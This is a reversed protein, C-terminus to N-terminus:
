NPRDEVVAELERTRQEYINLVARNSYRAADERIDLWDAQESRLEDDAGGAALAAAYAESMRRDAAALRPDGCVMQQSRTLAGQCDFSPHIPAPPAPAVPPAIAAPVPLSVSANSSVAPDVFRPSPEAVQALRGPPPAAPASPARDEQIPRSRTPIPPAAEPAAAAEVNPGASAAPAVEARLAPTAAPTPASAPAKSTWGGRTLAFGAGVALMALLAVAAMGGLGRSPAPPEDSERPSLILADHAPEFRDFEPEDEDLADDYPLEEDLDRPTDDAYSSFGRFPHPPADGDLEGASM